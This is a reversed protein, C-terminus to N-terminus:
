QFNLFITGEAAMGTGGPNFDSSRCALHDTTFLTLSDVIAQYEACNPDVSDSGNPDMTALEAEGDDAGVCYYRNTSLSSSAVKLLFYKGAGQSFGKGVISTYSSGPTKNGKISRIMFEHTEPNGDIDNRYCYDNEGVYDVWVAIDISLQKNLADLFAQLVGYEFHNNNSDVWVFGFLAYKFIASTTNRREETIALINGTEDLEKFAGGFDYGNSADENFACNYTTSVNGFNFPPVIVQETIASCSSKTHPYFNNTEYLTKLLNSTDIVGQDTNPDFDRLLYFIDYLPNGPVLSADARVHPSSSASSTEPKFHPITERGATYFDMGAIDTPNGITTIGSNCGTIILPISVCAMLLNKTKM